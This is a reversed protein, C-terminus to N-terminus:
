ITALVGVRMETMSPPPQSSSGVSVRFSVVILSRISSAKAIIPTRGVRAVQPLILSPAMVVAKIKNGLGMLLGNLSKPM